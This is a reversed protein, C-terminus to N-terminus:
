GANSKDLESEPVFCNNMSRLPLQLLRRVPLQRTSWTRLGVVFCYILRRRRYSCRHRRKWQRWARWYGSDWLYLLKNDTSNATMM